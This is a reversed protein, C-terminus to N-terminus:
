ATVCISRAESVLKSFLKQFNRPVQDVLEPHWQVGVVWRREDPPAELCEIVGDKLSYASVLLGPAKEITTIGQHHLSNVKMFGGLGLITTLRSGPPVFIQHSLPSDDDSAHNPIDQVLKGGLFVNLAQMGRCIGLIPLDRELAAEILPFENEDRIPNLKLPASPDANDGYRSPDIDAGGSLLLGDLSAVLRAPDQPQEMELVVAKGGAAEVAGVYPAIPEENAHTVGVVPQSM